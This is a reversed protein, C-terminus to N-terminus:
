EDEGDINDVDSIGSEYQSIFIEREEQNDTPDTM